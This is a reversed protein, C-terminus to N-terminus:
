KPVPTSPSLHTGEKQCFNTLQHLQISSPCHQPIWGKESDSEMGDQGRGATVSDWDGQVQEAKVFDTRLLAVRGKEM